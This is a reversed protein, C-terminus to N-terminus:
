QVVTFAPPMKWSCHALCGLEGANPMNNDADTCLPFLVRREWEDNALHTLIVVSVFGGNNWTYSQQQLGSCFWKHAKCHYLGNRTAFIQSVPQLQFDTIKGNQQSSFQSRSLHPTPELAGGHRLCICIQTRAVWWVSYHLVHAKGEACPM